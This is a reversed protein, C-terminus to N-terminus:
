EMFLKVTKTKVTNGYKDKIVCYVQRGDRNESMETSYTSGTFSSSKVFEDEGAPAVYWAYTLGEGSIMLVGEDDLTWTVNDGDAGCAGSAVIEAASASVAMVGVALCLAFIFVM